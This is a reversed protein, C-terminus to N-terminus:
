LRKFTKTSNQYKIQISDEFAKVIRLKNIKDFEKKKYLTDNIKLVVRKKDVNNSKVFGYYTIKPWLLASKPKIARHPMSPQKLPTKSHKRAITTQFPNKNILNLHYADKKSAKVSKSYTSNLVEQHTSPDSQFFGFVKIFISAYIIVVLVRVGVYYIKKFTM